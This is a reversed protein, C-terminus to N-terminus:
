KYVERFKVKWLNKYQTIPLNDASEKFYDRIKNFELLAVHYSADYFNMVFATLEKRDTSTKYCQQNKQNFLIKWDVEFDLM